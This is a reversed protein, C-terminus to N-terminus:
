SKRNKAILRKGLGRTADAFIRQVVAVREKNLEFHKRDPALM